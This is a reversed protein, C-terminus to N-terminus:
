NGIAKKTVLSYLRTEKEDATITGFYKGDNTFDLVRNTYRQHTINVKIAELVEFNQTNIFRITSNSDVVVIRKGFNMNKILIIANNYNKAIKPKM